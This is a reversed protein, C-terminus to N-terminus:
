NSYLHHNGMPPGNVMLWKRLTYGRLNWEIGNLEMLDRKFEMLDRNFEMLDRNFEILDRNFEM